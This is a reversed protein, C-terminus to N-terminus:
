PVLGLMFASLGKVNENKYCGGAIFTVGRGTLRLNKGKLHPIKKKEFFLFIKQRRFTYIELLFRLKVTRPKTIKAPNRAV